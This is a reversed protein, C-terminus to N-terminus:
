ATNGVAYRHLYDIMARMIATDEDLGGLTTNCRYCLLGRIQGTTHNHDVALSMLGSQNHKTEPRGCIACVGSQTALKADYDAASIGFFHRLRATRMGDPTKDRWAKNIAQVHDRDADYRRKAYEAVCAKCRPVRGGKNGKGVPFAELPKEVRCVNCVKTNM